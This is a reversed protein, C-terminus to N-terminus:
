RRFDNTTGMRKEAFLLKYTANELPKRWVLGLAELEPEYPLQRNAVLFLRGGTRLAAAATRLFAKGLYLDSTQGTHFPPNSVITEYKGPLGAAVDHWHFEFNGEGLNKRACALARADAEFLHIAKVGSCGDAVAKSLYGWGAGLDAVTGRLSKPLNAALLASGPDIHDASFVGAEVVFGDVERPEGLARWSALLGEDWTGDKVAHFVRCKHKSLTAIKGTAKELEKEFRQAGATNAMAVVLTGGNELLDHAKALAALTEDKSKGPLLMVLPWTGVPEDVRAFGAKEWADALPKLPQWGTVQPWDKLDPHPEAGLFLARSPVAIEGQSFPLMLTELAPSM